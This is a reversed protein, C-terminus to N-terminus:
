GTSDPNATANGMVIGEDFVMAHNQAFIRVGNTVNTAFTLNKFTVDGNAFFRRPATNFNMVGVKDGTITITGTFEKTAYSAPVVASDVIHVTAAGKATAVAAAYAMADEFKGFATASTLGIDATFTSDTTIATGTSSVYIDTGVTTDTYLVTGCCATTYTIGTKEANLAIAVKKDPHACTEGCYTCTSNEYAHGKYTCIAGDCIACLWGSTADAVSFDHANATCYDLLTKSGIAVTYTTPTTNVFKTINANNTLDTYVNLTVSVNDGIPTANFVNVASSKGYPNSKFIWDVVMSGSFNNQTDRYLIPTNFGDDVIVTMHPYNGNADAVCTFAKGATTGATYGACLYRSWISDTDNKTGVYIKASGGTYTPYLGRGAGIFWYDGSHITLDGAMKTPATIGTCIQGTAFVYLKTASFTHGGITANSPIAVGDDAEMELGEGLTVKNGEASLIIGKNDNATIKLNNWETEGSFHFHDEVSTNNFALVGKNATDASTITIKGTHAPELFCTTGVNKVVTVTDVIKITGGADGLLAYAQELTAVPADASTGANADNGNNSVYVEELASASIVCALVSLLLCLALVIRRTNKQM